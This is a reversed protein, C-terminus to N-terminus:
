YDGMRVVIDFISGYHGYGADKQLVYVIAGNGRAADFSQDLGTEDFLHVVKKDKFDYRYAGWRYMGDPDEQARGMFTFSGRGPIVDRSRGVAALGENLEGNKGGYVAAFPTAINDSLNVISFRYTGETKILLKGDEM